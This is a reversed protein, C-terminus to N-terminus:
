SKYFGNKVSAAVKLLTCHFQPPNQPKQTCTKYSCKSGWGQGCLGCDDPSYKNGGWCKDPGMSCGQVPPQSTLSVMGQLFGWNRWRYLQSSKKSIQRSIYPDWLILGGPCASTISFISLYRSISDLLISIGIGWARQPVFSGENWPRMLLLMHSIIFRSVQIEKIWTLLLIVHFCEMCANVVFEFDSFGPLILFGNTLWQM